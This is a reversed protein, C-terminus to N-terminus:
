GTGGAEEEDCFDFIVIDADRDEPRAAFHRDLAKDQAEVFGCRVKAIKLPRWQSWTEIQDVARSLRHISSVTVM